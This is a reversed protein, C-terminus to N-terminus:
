PDSRPPAPGSLNLVPPASRIPEPKSTSIQGGAATTDAPKRRSKIDQAVVRDFFECAEAIEKLSNKQEDTM